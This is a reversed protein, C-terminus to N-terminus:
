PRLDDAPQDSLRAASGRAHEAHHPYGLMNNPLFEKGGGV